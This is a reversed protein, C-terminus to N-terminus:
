KKHMELIASILADEDLVLEGSAIAQQLQRVKNMDVDDHGAMTAFSQELARSAGSVQSSATESRGPAVTSQTATSNHQEQALRNVPNVQLTNKPEIKM